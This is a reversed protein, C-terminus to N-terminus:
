KECCHKLALDVLECFKKADLAAGGILGGDVDPLPLFQAANEPKMSGGYLIRIKDAVDSGAVSAIVASDIVSGLPPSDIIIYDYNGRTKALLDKFRDSGLLEVPNPPFHGSFIIDFNPIQTNYLIQSFEAQGTLYESLGFMKNNRIAGRLLMSKRMDADIMLTRKGADALSKSLESSVTSKGENENCSTIVVTKVDAGCFFLNTRLTKYTENSLYDGSSGTLFNVKGASQYDNLISYEPSSEPKLHIM